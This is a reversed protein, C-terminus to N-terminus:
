DGDSGWPRDWGLAARIRPGVRALHRKGHRDAVPAVGLDAVSLELYSGALDELEPFASEAPDIEDLLVLGLHVRNSGPDFGTKAALDAFRAVQDPDMAVIVSRQARRDHTRIDDWTKEIRRGDAKVIRVGVRHPSALFPSPATWWGRDPYLGDLRGTLDVVKVRSPHLSRAAADVAVALAGENSSDATVVVVCHRSPAPKGRDILVQVDRYGARRLADPITWPLDTVQEEGLNGRRLLILGKEIGVILFVEEAYDEGRMLDDSLDVVGEWTYADVNFETVGSSNKKGTWMWDVGDIGLMEASDDFKDITDNVIGASKLAELVAKASKPMGTRDLEAIRAQLVDIQAQFNAGLVADVGPESRRWELRRLAAELTTRDEVATVLRFTTAKPSIGRMGDDGGPMLGPVYEADATEGFSFEVSLPPGALKVIAELVEVAVAGASQAVDFTRYLHRDTMDEVWGFLQYLYRQSSDRPLVWGDAELSEQVAQEIPPVGAAPTTGLEVVMVKRRTKSVINGFEETTTRARSHGYYRVGNEGARQSLDLGWEAEPDGRLRLFGTQMARAVPVWKVGLIPSAEVAAAIDPEDPERAAAELERVTPETGFLPLDKFQALGSIGRADDDSQVALFLHRSDLELALVLAQLLRSTVAGIPAELNFYRYPLPFDPDDDATIWAGMGLLERQQEFAVEGAAVTAFDSLEVQLARQWGDPIPDDYEAKAIRAQAFGRQTLTGDEGAVYLDTTWGQRGGAILAEIGKALAAGIPVWDPGLYPNEEIDRLDAM